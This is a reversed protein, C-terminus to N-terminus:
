HVSSGDSAQRGSLDRCWPPVKGYGNSAIEQTLSVATAILKIVPRGNSLQVFFVLGWFADVLGRRWHRYSHVMTSNKPIYRTVSRTRGQLKARGNADAQLFAM